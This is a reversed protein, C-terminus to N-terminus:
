LTCYSLRRLLLVRALLEPPGCRFVEFLRDLELSYQRVQCHYVPVLDTVRVCASVCARVCARVCALAGVLVALSTLGKAYGHVNPNIKM